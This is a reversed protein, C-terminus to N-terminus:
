LFMGFQDTLITTLLVIPRKKPLPLYKIKAERDLCARPGVSCGLFRTGLASQGYVDLASILLLHMRSNVERGRFRKLAHPDSNTIETLQLGSLRESVTAKNVSYESVTKINGHHISNTSFHYGL